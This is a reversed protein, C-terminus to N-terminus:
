NLISNLTSQKLKGDIERFFIVKLTFIGFLLSFQCYCEGKKNKENVYEIKYSYESEGEWGVSWDVYSTNSPLKKLHEISTIEIDKYQAIKERIIDKYGKRSFM